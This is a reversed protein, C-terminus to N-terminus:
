FQLTSISLLIETKGKDIESLRSLLLTANHALQEVVCVSGRV